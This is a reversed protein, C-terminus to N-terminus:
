AAKRHFNAVILTPSCGLWKSPHYAPSILQALVAELGSSKIWACAGGIDQYVTSAEMVRCASDLEEAYFTKTGPYAVSSCRLQPLCQRCPETACVFPWHETSGYVWTGRSPGASILHDVTDAGSAFTRTENTEPDLSITAFSSHNYIGAWDVESNACNGLSSDSAWSVSGAVWACQWLWRAAVQWHGLRSAAHMTACHRQLNRWL